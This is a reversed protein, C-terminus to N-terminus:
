SDLIVERCCGGDGKPEGSRGMSMRDQIHSFLRFYREGRKYLRFVYEESLRLAM